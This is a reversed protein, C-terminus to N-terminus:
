IREGHLALLVIWFGSSGWSFLEFRSKWFNRGSLGLNEDWNQWNNIRYGSTVLDRLILKGIQLQSLLLPFIRFFLYHTFHKPIVSVRVLLLLGASFWSIVYVMRDRWESSNSSIDLCTNWEEFVRTGPKSCREGCLGDDHQHKVEVHVFGNSVRGVWNWSWRKQLPGRLEM